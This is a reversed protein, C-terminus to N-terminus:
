PTDGGDCSSRTVPEAFKKKLANSEPRPRGCARGDRQGRLLSANLQSRIEDRVATLMRLEGTMANSISM